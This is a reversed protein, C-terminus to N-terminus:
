ILKSHPYNHLHWTFLVQAGFPIGIGVSYSQPHHKNAIERAKKLLEGVKEKGPFRATPGMTIEQLSGAMEQLNMIEVLDKELEPTFYDMYNKGFEM